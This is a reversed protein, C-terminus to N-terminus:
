NMDFRIWLMRWLSGDLESLFLVNKCHDGPDLMVKNIAKGKLRKLITLMKLVISM